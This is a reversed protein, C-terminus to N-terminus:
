LSNLFDVFEQYNEEPLTSVNKAGFEKLKAACKDRTDDGGNQIKDGLLKRVDTLQIGTEEKEPEEKVETQPEEKVAEAKQATKKAEKKPAPKEEKVEQVLGAPQGGIACLLNNLATTQVSDSLDVNLKFKVIKTM